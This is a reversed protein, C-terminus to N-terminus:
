SEYSDSNKTPQLYIRAIHEKVKDGAVTTEMFTGHPNFYDLVENYNEVWDDIQKRREKGSKSELIRLLPTNQVICGEKIIDEPGLVKVKTRMGRFKIKLTDGVNVM